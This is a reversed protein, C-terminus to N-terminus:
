QEFYDRGNFYSRAARAIMDDVVEQIVRDNNLANESNCGLLFDEYVAVYGYANLGDFRLPSVRFRVSYAAPYNNGATDIFILISGWRREDPIQTRDLSGDATLPLDRFAVGAFDHRIRLVASDKLTTEDLGLAKAGPDLCVNISWFYEIRGFDRFFLQPYGVTPTLIPSGEKNEAMVLPSCSFLSLLCLPYRLHM